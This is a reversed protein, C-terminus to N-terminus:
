LGQLCIKLLRRGLFKRSITTQDPEERLLCYMRQTSSSNFLYCNIIKFPSSVVESFFSTFVSVFSVGELLFSDLSLLSELGSLFSFSASSELSDFSFFSSFFLLYTNFWTENRACILDTTTKSNM